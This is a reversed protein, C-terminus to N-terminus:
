NFKNNKNNSFLLNLLRNIIIKEFILRNTVLSLLVFVSYAYIWRTSFVSAMKKYLRRQEHVNDSIRIEVKCMNKGKYYSKQVDRLYFSERKKL